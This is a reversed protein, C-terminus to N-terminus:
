QERRDSPIYHPHPASRNGAISAEWFPEAVRARLASHLAFIEHYHGVRAESTIAVDIVWPAPLASYQCPSFCLVRDTNM